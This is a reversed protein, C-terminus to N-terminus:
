GVPEVDFYTEDNATSAAPLGDIMAAVVPPASLFHALSMYIRLGGPQCTGLDLL